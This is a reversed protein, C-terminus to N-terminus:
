IKKFTVILDNGFFKWPSKLRNKQMKYITKEFKSQSVNFGFIRIPKYGSCSIDSIIFKSKNAIIKIQNKSFGRGLYYDSVNKGSNM